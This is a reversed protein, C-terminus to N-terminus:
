FCPEFDIDLRMLIICYTNLIVCINDLRLGLGWDGTRVPGYVLFDLPERMARKTGESHERMARQIIESHERLCHHLIRPGM